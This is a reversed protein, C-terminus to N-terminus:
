TAARTDGAVIGTLIEMALMNGNGADSGTSYDARKRSYVIGM